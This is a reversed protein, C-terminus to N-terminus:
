ADMEKFLFCILFFDKTKADTGRIKKKTAPNNKDTAPIGPWLSNLDYKILCNVLTSGKRGVECLTDERDLETM